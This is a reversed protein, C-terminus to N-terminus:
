IVIGELTLHKRGRLLLVPIKANRARTKLEKDNTALIGNVKGAYELLQDDVSGSLGESSVIKCKDSMDRAIRFMRLEMRDESNEIKADIEDLVSDLLVFEIAQEIVREAERFIDVGFQAPVALFNTDVVVTIPM